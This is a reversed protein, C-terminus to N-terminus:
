GTIRFTATTQAYIGGYPHSTTCDGACVAMQVQYVGPSFSENESPNTPVGWEVEYNGKPQGEEFQEGGFPFDAGPPIVTVAILGPGTPSSITYQLTITFNTGQPGSPPRVIAQTINVAGGSVVPCLDVVQCLYIPDPDEYEILNIFETIGVYDCILDCAVQELQQPLQQCLAGCSGLVGGNLVIQLLENLANSFLSVCFHFRPSPVLASALTLLVATSAFINPTSLLLFGILGLLLILKLISLLRIVLHFVVV